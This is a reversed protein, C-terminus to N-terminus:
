KDEGEGEGEGKFDPNALKLFENKLQGDTDCYENYFKMSRIDQTKLGQGLSWVLFYVNIPVIIIGPLVVNGDYSSRNYGAILMGVIAFIDALYNTINLVLFVGHKDMKIKLIFTDLDTYCANLSATYITAGIVVALHCLASYGLFGSFWNVWVGDTDGSSLEPNVYYTYTITLILAAQLVLYQCNTQTEAIYEPGQLAYSVCFDLLTGGCTDMNYGEFEKPPLTFVGAEHFGHIADDYRKLVTIRDEESLSLDIAGTLQRDKFVGAGLHRTVPGTLM